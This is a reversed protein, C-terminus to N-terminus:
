VEITRKERSYVKEFEALESEKFEDTADAYIQLTTEVNAHGLIDQMVKINVGAECMRTTFTHRLTHSSFDPLITVDEGDLNNKLIAKNCEAIIDRLVNNLSAQRLVRGHQGVFIFDSYGDIVSTSEINCEELLEKQLLFAEKVMPLMPITRTGARTKTHNITFIGQTQTSTSYNALTHNVHILGKDLDIDCWRLGTTEGVRMGTWLMVTFLPYWKYYKRRTIFEEFLKQESLTLARKHTPAFEATKKLEKLASDSPNYRLWEDEVAHDLVQHLVNHAICVTGIQLGREEVLLNYFAKINSRKLNEIKTNGFDQEIYLSYTLKYNELTTRRIGRKLQIWERYLDNITINNKKVIGDLVDRTVEKEKERLEELTTASISHRNGRKDRWKYEYSGSDRQYEGEKLVRNNSDKRRVIKRTTNKRNM